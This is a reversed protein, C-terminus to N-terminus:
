GSKPLGELVGLQYEAAEALDRYMGASAELYRTFPDGAAERGTEGPPFLFGAVDKVESNRIAGLAADLKKLTEEREAGGL